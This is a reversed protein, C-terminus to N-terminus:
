RLQGHFMVPLFIKSSYFIDIKNKLFFKLVAFFTNMNKWVDNKDYDQQFSEFVRLIYYFFPIKLGKAQTFM